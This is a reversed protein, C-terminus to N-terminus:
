LLDLLWELERNKTNMVAVTYWQVNNRQVDSDQQVTEWRLFIRFLAEIACRIEDGFYQSSTFDVHHLKLLIM